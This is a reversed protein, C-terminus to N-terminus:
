NYGNKEEQPQKFEISTNVGGFNFSAAKSTSDTATSTADKPTNSPNNFNFGSSPNFQEYEAIQQELLNKEHLNSREIEHIEKQIQIEQLQLEEELEHMFLILEDENLFCEKESQSEKSTAELILGDM